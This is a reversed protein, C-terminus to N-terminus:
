EEEQEQNQAIQAREITAALLHNQMFNGANVPYTGDQVAILEAISACAKLAEASTAEHAILVDWLAALLRIHSGDACRAAHADSERDPHLHPFKIQTSPQNICEQPLLELWDPTSKGQERRMAREGRYHGYCLYRVRGDALPVCRAEHTVHGYDCQM